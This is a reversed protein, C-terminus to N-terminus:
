PHVRSTQLTRFFRLLQEVRYGLAVRVDQTKVGKSDQLPKRKKKLNSADNKWARDISVDPLCHYRAGSLRLFVTAVRPQGSKTFM